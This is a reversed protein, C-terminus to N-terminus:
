PYGAFPLQIERRAMEMMKAIEDQTYGAEAWLKEKPVGIDLKTKLKTLEEIENRPVASEWVTNIQAEEDLGAQGNLNALRRALKMCQEWSDGFSVQRSKARLILPSDQQKLTGEAAVQGTIQFRSAPTDTAMALWLILRDIMSVLSTLDSPDIAQFSAATSPKTTGIITGPAIALQNSLDAKLPQGDTTPIFGLAVFIRFATQDGTALLDILSKNIADQLPIADWAELRINRNKFAIAAIGLPSGDAARWPIPWASDGAEQLPRWGAGSDSYKEVRDPYYVTQRRLSKGKGLYEVWRKVAYLPPQNHDDNEYFMKVGYDDGGSDGCTYRLHHIFNPRGDTKNWDVIVFTEGDRIASEHVDESIIDLQAQTWWDWLTTALDQDSSDFRAVHLREAVSQVVGRCLNLRFVPDGNDSSSDAGLFERLRDTLYTRHEGDHYDRALVVNKQRELEEAALFGATLLELIQTSAASPMM